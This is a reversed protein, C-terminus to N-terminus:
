NVNLTSVEGEGKGVTGLSWVVSFQAYSNKQLLFESNLDNSCFRLARRQRCVSQRLVKTENLGTCSARENQPRLCSSPHKLHWKSQKKIKPVSTHVACRHVFVRQIHVSLFIVAGRVTLLDCSLFHGIDVQRTCFFVTAPGFLVM